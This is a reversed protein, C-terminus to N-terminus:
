EKRTVYLVGTIYNNTDTLASFYLTIGNSTMRFCHSARMGSAIERCWIRELDAKVMEMNLGDINLVSKIEIMNLLGGETAKLFRLYPITAIEARWDQVWTGFERSSIPAFARRWQERTKDLEILSCLNSASV